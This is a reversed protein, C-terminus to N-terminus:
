LRAVVRTLDQAGHIVRLVDVGDDLPLYLVLYDHYKRIPWFRLGKVRAERVECLTGMGPHKALSKFAEEIAAYVDLAAKLNDKSIRIAIDKAEDLAQDRVILRGM